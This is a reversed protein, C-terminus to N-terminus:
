HRFALDRESTPHYEPVPHAQVHGTSEGRSKPPPMPRTPLAAMATGGAELALKAKVIAWRMTGNGGDPTVKKEIEALIGGADLKKGIANATEYYKQQTKCNRWFEITYALALILSHSILEPTVLSRRRVIGTQVQQLLM